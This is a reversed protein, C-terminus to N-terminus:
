ETDSCHLFFKDYIIRRGIKASKNLKSDNMEDTKMINDNVETNPSTEPREKEKNTNMKM